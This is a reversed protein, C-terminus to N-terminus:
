KKKKNARQWEAPEKVKGSAGIWEVGSWEVGITQGRFHWGAWKEMAAAPETAVECCEGGEGWAEGEWTAVDFKMETAENPHHMFPPTTAFKSYKM